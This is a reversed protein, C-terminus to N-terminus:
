LFQPSRLRYTTSLPQSGVTRASTHLYTHTSKSSSALFSGIIISSNILDDNPKRSIQDGGPFSWIYVFHWKVKWTRVGVSKLSSDVRLARAHAICAVSLVLAIHRKWCVPCLSKQTSSSSYWYLDPCNYRAISHLIVFIISYQQNLAGSHGLNCEAFLHCLSSFSDPPLTRGDSLCDTLWFHAYNCLLDSVPGNGM